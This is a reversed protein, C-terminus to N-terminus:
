PGITTARTRRKRLWWVLLLLPSLLLGIAVVALLLGLATVALPVIFVAVAVLPVVIAVIVVALLIGLTALLWHGAHAGSWDVVHGNVTVTGIDQPLGWLLYAALAMAVLVAPVALSLVVFLGLKKM